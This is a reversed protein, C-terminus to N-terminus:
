LNKSRTKFIAEIITDFAEISGQGDKVSTIFFGLLKNENVYKQILANDLKTEDVLDAKNAIIIIPIESCYKLIEDYWNSIQNLKDKVLDDEELSYVIIAAKIVM